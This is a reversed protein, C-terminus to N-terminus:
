KKLTPTPVRLKFSVMPVAAYPVAAVSEVRFNLDPM